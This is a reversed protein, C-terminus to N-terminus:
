IQLHDFRRSVAPWDHSVRKFGYEAVGFMELNNYWGYKHSECRPAEYAEKPKTMDALHWSKTNTSRYATMQAHSPMPGRKPPPIPTKAKSLCPADPDIDAMGGAKLFGWAGDFGKASGMESKIRDRWLADQMLTNTKPNYDGEDGGMTLQAGM